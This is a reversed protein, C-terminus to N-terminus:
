ADMQQTRSVPIARMGRYRRMALTVPNRKSIEMGRCFAPTFRERREFPTAPYLPEPLKELLSEVTQQGTVPVLAEDTAAESLDQPAEPANSRAQEEQLRTCEFTRQHKSLRVHLLQDQEGLYKAAFRLNELPQLM